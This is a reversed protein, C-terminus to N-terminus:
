MFQREFGARLAALEDRHEAEHQCLHHLVWEPTVDYDPMSRPRRFDDLSMPKYSDLLLGRVKDLRTWLRELSEGRVATLRGQADRVDHPFWDVLGMPWDTQLVDSYLWDLEIAAIHYLLTGISHGGETATWDVASSIVGDLARRTRRRADEVMWLARGVEVECDPLPEVALRKDSM